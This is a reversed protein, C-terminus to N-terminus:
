EWKPIKDKFEKTLEDYFMYEYGLKQCLEIDKKNYHSYIIVTTEKQEKPYKMRLRRLKQKSSPTMYGKVEVFGEKFRDCGKTIVFDMIYVYPRTTYGDFTFSREEYTWECGLYNLIRAFNAETRSKFNYIPHVDPRPGKKMKSFKQVLTEKVKTTKKQAVGLHCGACVVDINMEYGEPLYLFVKKCKSCRVSNTM